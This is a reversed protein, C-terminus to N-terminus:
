EVKYGVGSIANADVVLVFEKGDKVVIFHFRIPPNAVVMASGTCDPNVGYTGGVPERWGESQPKGNLVVYDRATMNGNGEFHFLVLTRLPLNPPGLITGDIKTGYDGFLTRDSCAKHRQGNESFDSQAFAVTGSALAFCVTVIRTLTISAISTSNDKM